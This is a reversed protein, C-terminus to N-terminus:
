NSREWRLVGQMKNVLQTRCTFRTASDVRPPERLLVAQSPAKGLSLFSALIGRCWLLVATQAGLSENRLPSREDDGRDQLNMMLLSLRRRMYTMARTIRQPSRESPGRPSDMDTLARERARNRKITPKRWPREFDQCRFNDGTVASEVDATAHALQADRRGQRTNTHEDRLCRRRCCLKPSPPAADAAVSCAFM